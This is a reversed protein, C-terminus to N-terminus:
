INPDRGNDPIFVLTKANGIIFQIEELSMTSTNRGNIEIISEPLIGTEQNGLEGKYIVVISHNSDPEVAKKIKEIENRIQLITM